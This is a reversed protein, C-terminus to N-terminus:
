SFLLFSFYGRDKMIKLFSAMVNSVPRLNTTAFGRKEANVIKSLAENLIKRGM